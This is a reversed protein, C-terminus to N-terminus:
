LSQPCKKGKHHNRTRRWPSLQPKKSSKKKKGDLPPHFSLRFKHSLLCLLTEEKMTFHEEYFIHYIDVCVCVYIYFLDLAIAITAGFVPFHWRPRHIEPTKLLQGVVAANWYSKPLHSWILWKGSVNLSLSGHECDLPSSHTKTDPTPTASPTPVSPAPPWSTLFFSNAEKVDRGCDEICICVCKLHSSVSMLLAITVSSVSM